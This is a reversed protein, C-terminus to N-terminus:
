LSISPSTLCTMHTAIAGYSTLIHVGVITKMRILAESSPQLDLKGNLLRWCPPIPCFKLLLSGEELINSLILKASGLAFELFILGVPGTSSSSFALFSTSASGLDSFSSYFRPFAEGLSMLSVCRNGYLVAIRSSRGSLISSGPTGVM